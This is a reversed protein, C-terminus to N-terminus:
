ECKDFTFWRLQTVSIDYHEEIIKRADDFMAHAWDLNLAAAVSKIAAESPGELEVYTPIKPWTDIDIVVEDKVFTHRRKQQHRFAVLGISELFEEALNADPVSFEIERASDITQAVNQKYTLVTKGEMTRLRVYRHEELWKEESDYLIVESLMKEGKDVAGIAHLQQVLEQKNIELFRAEIETRM